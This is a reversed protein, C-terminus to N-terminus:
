VCKHGAAPERKGKKGIRRSSFPEGLVRNRSWPSCKGAKRNECFAVEPFFLVLRRRFPPQGARGPRAPLPPPCRASGAAARRFGGCVLGEPRVGEAKKCNHWPGSYPIIPYINREFSSQHFTFETVCFLYEAATYATEMLIYEGARGTEYIGAVVETLHHAKGPFLQEAPSRGSDSWPGDPSLSM